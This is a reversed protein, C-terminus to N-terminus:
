ECEMVSERACTAGGKKHPEAEKIYFDIGVADSPILGKSLGKFFEAKTLCLSLKRALNSIMVSMYEPIHICIIPPNLGALDPYVSVSRGGQLKALCSGGWLNSM